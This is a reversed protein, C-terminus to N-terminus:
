AKFDMFAAHGVQAHAPRPDHHLPGNKPRSEPITITSTYGKQQVYVHFMWLCPPNEQIKWTSPAMKLLRQDL